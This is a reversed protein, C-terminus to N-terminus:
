KKLLTAARECTNNYVAYVKFHAFILQAHFASKKTQVFILHAILTAHFNINRLFKM